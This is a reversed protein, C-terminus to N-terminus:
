QVTSTASNVLDHHRLMKYRRPRNVPRATRPPHEELRSIVPLFAFYSHIGVFQETDDIGDMPILVDVFFNNELADFRREDGGGLLVVSFFRIDDDFDVAGVARNLPLWSPTGM